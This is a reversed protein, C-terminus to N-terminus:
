IMERSLWVISTHPTFKEQIKGALLHLLFATGLINGNQLGEHILAQLCQNDTAGQMVLLYFSASLVM